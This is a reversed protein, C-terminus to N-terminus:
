KGSGAQSAPKLARIYADIARLQLDTYASSFAPMQGTKGNRIRSIIEADSLATGMLKPGKGDERGGGSHCWGCSGAFLKNVDLGPGAAAAPKDEASPSAASRAGPSAVGKADQGVHRGSQMPGPPAAAQGAQGHAAASAAAM